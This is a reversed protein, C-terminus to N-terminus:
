GGALHQLHTNGYGLCTVWSPGYLWLPLFLLRPDRRQESVGAIGPTSPDNLSPQMGPKCNIRIAAFDEGGDASTCGSGGIWRPPRHLDPSAHTRAGFFFPIIIVRSRSLWLTLVPASACQDHAALHDFSGGLSGVVHEKPVDMLTPKSCGILPPVRRLMRIRPPRLLCFLCACVSCSCACVFGSGNKGM